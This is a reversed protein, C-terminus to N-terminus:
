RDHRVVEEPSNIVLPSYGERTGIDHYGRIRTRNVIHKFDWSVLMDVRHVTATAVHLADDFNAWGIVGDAIYLAALRDAELTVLVRERELAPDQVIARVTPPANRLESDFLDSVVM